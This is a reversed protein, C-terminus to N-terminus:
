KLPIRLKRLIIIHQLRRVADENYIRYSYDEKHQSPLLGIKEYNRLIRTSVNFSKSVESITMFNMTVGGKQM